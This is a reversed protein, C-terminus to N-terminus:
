PASPLDPSILFYSSIYIDIIPIHLALICRSKVLRRCSLATSPQFSHLFNNEPNSNPLLAIGYSIFEFESELKRTKQRWRRGQDLDERVRKFKALKESSLILKNWDHPFYDPISPFLLMSIANAGGWWRFSGERKYSECWAIFSLSTSRLILACKACDEGDIKWGRVKSEM